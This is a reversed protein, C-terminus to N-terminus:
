IITKNHNNTNKIASDLKEQNLQQIILDRKNIIRQYGESNEKDGEFHFSSNKQQLEEESKLYGIYRDRFYEFSMITSDENFCGASHNLVRFDNNKENYCLFFSEQQTSYTCVHFAEVSKYNEKFYKKIIETFTKSNEESFIDDPNMHKIKLSFIREKAEIAAQLQAQKIKQEEKDKKNIAAIDNAEIVEIELRSPCITEQSVIYKAMRCFEKFSPIEQKTKPKFEQLKEIYFSEPVIHYGDKNKLIFHSETNNYAIILCESEELDSKNNLIYPAHIKFQREAVTDLDIELDFALCDAICFIFEQNKSLQLDYSM